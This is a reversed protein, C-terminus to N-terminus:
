KDKYIFRMRYVSVPYFYNYGCNIDKQIIIEDLKRRLNFSHKM